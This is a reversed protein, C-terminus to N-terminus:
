EVPKGDAFFDDTFVYVWSKDDYNELIRTYNDLNFIGIDDGIVTTIQMEGNSIVAYAEPRYNQWFGWEEPFDGQSMLLMAKTYEGNAPIVFELTLKDETNQDLAPSFIKVTIDLNTENIFVYNYGRAPDSDKNCAVFGLTIVTICFLLKKM